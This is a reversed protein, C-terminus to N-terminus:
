KFWSSIFLIIMESLNLNSSPTLFKIPHSFPSTTVGNHM